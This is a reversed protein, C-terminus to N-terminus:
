WVSHVTSHMNFPRLIKNYWVRSYRTQYRPPLSTRSLSVWVIFFPADDFCRWHEIIALFSPTILLFLIWPADWITSLPWLHFLPLVIGCRRHGWVDRNSIRLDDSFPSHSCYFLVYVLTCLSCYVLRSCSYFVDNYRVTGYRLRSWIAPALLEDVTSSSYDLVPPIM